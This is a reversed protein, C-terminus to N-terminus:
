RQHNCLRVRDFVGRLHQRDDPLKNNTGAKFTRKGGVCSFFIRVLKVLSAIYLSTSPDKESPKPNLKLQSVHVTKM